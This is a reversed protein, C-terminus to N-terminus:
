ARQEGAMEVDAFDAIGPAGFKRDVENQSEVAQAHGFAWHKRLPESKIQFRREVNRAALCSIRLDHVGFAQFHDAAFECGLAADGLMELVDLEHEFLRLPHLLLKRQKFNM